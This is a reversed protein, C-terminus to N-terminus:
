RSWEWFGKPAYSRDLAYARDLERAPKYYGRGIRSIGRDNRYNAATERPRSRSNKPPKKDVLQDPSGPEAAAEESRVATTNELARESAESPAWSPMGVAAGPRGIPARGIAVAENAAPKRMARLNSAPPPAAGCSPNAGDCTIAPNHKHTESDVQAKTGASKKTHDEKVENGLVAETPEESIVSASRLGSVQADVSSKNGSLAIVAAAGIAIGILVSFFVMRLERRLGPTPSLLGFEPHAYHDSRM